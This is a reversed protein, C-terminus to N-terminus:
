GTRRVTVVTIDDNQGWARAAEAIIPASRGSLERTREFGFLEGQASAAEVVGDTLLTLQEGPELQRGMALVELDKVVGLPLADPVQWEQGNCLPPFHGASAYEVQGQPGLVAVGATVFGRSGDALVQNVLTLIKGPLQDRHTRVVGIILSTRMAAQLGKGSVDGVVVLTAGDSRPLILYFDGGVESAPQYEVEIEYGPTEPRSSSVLELQAQRGSDLESQLRVGAAQERRNQLVVDVATALGFILSALHNWRFMLGGAPIGAPFWDPRTLNMIYMPYAVVAAAMLWTSAGRRRARERLILMAGSRGAGAIEVAPQHSSAGARESGSSEARANAAERAGGSVIAIPEGAFPAEPGAAGAAWEQPRGAEFPREQGNGDLSAHGACAIIMEGSVFGGATQGTPPLHSSFSQEVGLFLGPEFEANARRQLAGGAHLPWSDERSSHQREACRSIYSVATVLGRIARSAQIIERSGEAIPPHLLIACILDGLRRPNEGKPM